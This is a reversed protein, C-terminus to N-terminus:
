HLNTSQKTAFPIALLGKQTHLKALYYGNPLDGVYITSKQYASRITRGMIDIVQLQIPTEIGVIEVSGNRQLLVPNPGETNSVDMSSTKIEIPISDLQISPMAVWNVDSYANTTDYLVKLWYHGAPLTPRCKFHFTQSSGTPCSIGDFVLSQFLSPQEQSYLFLKVYSNFERGSNTISADINVSNNIYWDLPNSNLATLLLSPEDSSSSISAGNGSRVVVLKNKRDSTPKVISWNTSDSPRYLLYLNYIGESTLRSLNFSFNASNGAGAIFTSPSFNLNMRSLTTQGSKQYGIDFYGTYTNLGFNAVSFSLNFNTRFNTLESVSAALSSYMGIQYSSKNIADAKKIGVLMQHGISFGGTAGTTNPNTWSLSSLEFFGNDYGNWGWNIHYFGNSDYGDCVFAHGSNQNSRGAYLVPRSANLERLLVSNWENTTYFERSYLQIESDYGFYTKFAAGANNISSGSGTPSFDMDVSVACHYTLLAAASDQKGTADDTYTDLMSNWNYQTQGFNASLLGYDNEVYSHTGTGTTPWQHYKMIQAMATAVCGSVIRTNLNSDYPCLKNFPSEQGWKINGLLPSVVPTATALQQITLQVASTPTSTNQLTEIEIRYSELLEKLGEPLRELNIGGQDSYGLIPKTADDGSVIVFGENAGINYIYYAANSSSTRSAQVRSLAAKHPSLANKTALGLRKQSFSAAIDMARGPDIPKAYLLMCNCVLLVFLLVRYKM